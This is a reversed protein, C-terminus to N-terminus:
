TQKGPAGSSCGGPAGSSCRGAFYAFNHFRKDRDNKQKVVPIELYSIREKKFKGQSKAEASPHHWPGRGGRSPPWFPILKHEVHHSRTKRIRGVPRSAHQTAVAHAFATLYM